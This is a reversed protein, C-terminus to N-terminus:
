VCKEPYTQKLTFNVRLQNILNALIVLFTYINKKKGHLARTAGHRPVMVLVAHTRSVWRGTRERM